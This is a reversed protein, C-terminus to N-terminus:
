LTFFLAYIVHGGLYLILILLLLNERRRMKDIKPDYEIFKRRIKEGYDDGRRV